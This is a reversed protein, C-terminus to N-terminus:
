PHRTGEFDLLERSAVDRMLAAAHPAGAMAVDSLSIVGEPRGDADTVMIRSVREKAMLEEAHSLEDEPRCRVVMPTLIEAVQTEAASRNQACSRSALDRDTLV